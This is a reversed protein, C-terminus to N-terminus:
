NLLWIQVKMNVHMYKLDASTRHVYKQSIKGVSWGDICDYNPMIMMTQMM